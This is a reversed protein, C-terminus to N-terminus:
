RLPEVLQLRFDKCNAKPAIATITLTQKGMIERQLWGGGATDVLMGNLDFWEVKYNFYQVSSRRNLLEVQIRMLGGETTVTNVGLVNVKSNLSTDTIVRKDNIMQRTGATQAPEVTNVTTCGSWLSSGVALGLCLISSPHHTKM